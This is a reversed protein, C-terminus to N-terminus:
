ELFFNARGGGMSSTLNGSKKKKKLYLWPNRNKTLFGRKWLSKWYFDVCAGLIWVNEDWDWNPNGPLIQLISLPIGSKRCVYCQCGRHPLACNIKFLGNFRKKKKKQAFEYSSKYVMRVIQGNIDFVSNCGVSCPFNFCNYVGSFLPVITPQSGFTYNELPIFRASIVFYKMYLLGVWQWASYSVSRQSMYKMYYFSLAWFFTQRAYMQCFPVRAIHM